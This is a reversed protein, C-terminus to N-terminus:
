PHSVQPDMHFALQIAYTHPLFAKLQRELLPFSKRWPKYPSPVYSHPFNQWLFNTNTSDWFLLQHSSTTRMQKIKSNNIVMILILKLFFPNIKRVYRLKLRGRLYEPCSSPPLVQFLCCPPINRVPKSEVEFEGGKRLGGLVQGPIAGDVNLQARWYWDNILSFAGCVEGYIM